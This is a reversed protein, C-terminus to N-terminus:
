VGGVGVFVDEDSVIVFENACVEGGFLEFSVTCKGIILELGFRRLGFVGM